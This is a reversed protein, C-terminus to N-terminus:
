PHEKRVPPMGKLEAAKFGAKEVAKRVDDFSVTKGPELYLIATGQGLNVRASRVGALRGLHKEIGYACFPCAMGEIRVLVDGSVHEAAPPERAERGEGAVESAGLGLVLIRDNATDAAFIRGDSGAAIHTPSYVDPRRDDAPRWEGKFDGKAGLLVVRKNASDAVHIDGRADVAVGSPVRFAGRSFFRKWASGWIELSRGDPSIKQIRHNYADAVVLNGSDDFDLDTPYTFEGKGRGKKGISKLWGGKSDFVQIRHNYFDAVYVNGTRDAAIGAPSRFQGNGEGPEGWGYLREGDRSFVEVRDAEYDCVYLTGEPGVATDVPKKLVDPGGFEALFRGDPSLKQVRRNRSDAAYVNGQGDIAIGMPERFQAPGSGSTGWAAILGYGQAGATAPSFACLAFVAGLVRPGLCLRLKMRARYLLVRLYTPTVNLVGCIAAPTAGEVEKLFFATRQATSLSEAAEKIRSRTEAGLMEAEPGRPPWMGGADLRAELVAELDDRGEERRAKARLHSAKYYLIGFLYTRLSSRVQFRDSASLFAVFTEQVAEEADARSLGIALAGALLAPLHENVMATLAEPSRARLSEVGCGSTATAM